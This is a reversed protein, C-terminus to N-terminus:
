ESLPAMQNPAVKLALVPPKWAVEVSLNWITLWPPPVTSLMLTTSCMLGLPLSNEKLKPVQSPQPRSGPERRTTAPRPRGGCAAARLSAKICFLDLPESRSSVHPIPRENEKSGVRPQAGTLQDREPDAPEVQKAARSPHDLGRHFHAPQLPPRHLGMLRPGDPHWARNGLLDGGREGGPGVVPLREHEGSGQTPRETPGVEDPVVELRGHTGRVLRHGLEGPVLARGQQWLAQPEVVKPMRARAQEDGLARADLGHLRLEPM